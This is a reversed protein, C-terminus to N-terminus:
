NEVFTQGYDVSLELTSAKPENRLVPLLARIPGWHTVLAVSQYGHVAIDALAVRLRDEMQQWSEGNPPQFTYREDITLKSLEAAIQPWEWEDWDGFHREQLGEQAICPVALTQALLAAALAARPQTSHVVAQVGEIQCVKAMRSVQKHGQPSPAEQQEGPLGADQNTEPRRVITLKM